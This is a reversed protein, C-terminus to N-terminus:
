RYEWPDQDEALFVFEVFDPGDKWEDEIGRLAEVAAHVKVSWPRDDDSASMDVIFDIMLYLHGGDARLGDLGLILLGMDGAIRAAKYIGSVGVYVADGDM